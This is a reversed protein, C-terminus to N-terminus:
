GARAVDQPKRLKILARALQEPKLEGRAVRHAAGLRAGHFLAATSGIGVMVVGLIATLGPAQSLDSVQQVVLGIGAAALAASGAVLAWVQRPLLHAQGASVGRLERLSLSDVWAEQDEQAPAFAALRAGTLPDFSPEGRRRQEIAVLLERHVDPTLPFRRAIWAGGLHAAFSPVSILLRLGLIVATSQVAEGPVYGLSGIAALPVAAGPVAIFKPVMHWFASYQAERRKGTHLEDYDSVDAFVAAPLAFHASLGVGRLMYIGILLADDGPGIFLKTLDSLAALV